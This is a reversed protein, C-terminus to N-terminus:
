WRWRCGRRLLLTAHTHRLDHVRVRPLGARDCIRRLVRNLTEPHIPLGLPNTFVYGTEEWADGARKREEEQLTKWERLVAVADQSLHVTRLGRETKPLSELVKGSLTTRNGRVRLTWGELDVDEWKLGCM